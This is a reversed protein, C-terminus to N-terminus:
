RKFLIVWCCGKRIGFYLACSKDHQFQTKERIKHPEMEYVIRPNQLKCCNVTSSLLGGSRAEDYVKM